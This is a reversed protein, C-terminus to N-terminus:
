LRGIDDRKIVEVKALNNKTLIDILEESDTNVVIDCNYNKFEKKIALDIASLTYLPLPKDLFDKINKNKIGKSGARGCITFLLNM